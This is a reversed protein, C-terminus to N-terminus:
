QERQQGSQYGRTMESYFTQRLIHYVCAPLPRTNNWGMYGCSWQVLWRYAVARLFQNETQGDRRRYGKGNKDRLLPGVQLLVTRNTMASFDSHKTICKLHEISGDFTLKQRIQVIEKCCRYELAGTLNEKACEGCTCWDKATVEDEFRARLVAPTLGDQDEEDEDSTHALPEDAYPQVIGVVQMEDSSSEDSSNENSVSDSLSMVEDRDSM